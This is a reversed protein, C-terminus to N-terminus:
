NGILILKYCNNFENSNIIIIYTGPKLLTEKSSLFLTKTNSYEKNFITLGTLNKITLNFNCSRDFDLTFDSLTPNPYIKLMNKTNENEILSITQIAENTLSGTKLIFEENSLDTSLTDSFFYTENEFSYEAAVNLLLRGSNDFHIESPIVPYNTGANSASIFTGSSDFRAIYTKENNGTLSYSNNLADTLLLSGGGQIEQTVVIENEKNDMLLYNGIQHTQNLTVIWKILGNEGFKLIQNCSNALLANRSNNADIIIISDPSNLTLNNTLYLNNANDTHPYLYLPGGLTKTYSTVNWNYLGNSDAKIIFSNPNTFSTINNIHPLNLTFSNPFTLTASSYNNSGSLYINKNKDLIFEFFSAPLNSNVISSNATIKWYLTNQNIKFFTIEPSNDSLPVRHAIETLTGNFFSYLEGTHKAKIFLNGNEDSILQDIRLNRGEFVYHNLLNGLTDLKMVVSLSQIQTEVSPYPFSSYVPIILSDGNNFTFSNYNSSLYQYDVAFYIEGTNTSFPKPIGISNDSSGTYLVWKLVGYKNYKALFGGERNLISKSHGYVSNFTANNFNGSILYDDNKLIHTKEILISSSNDQKNFGCNWITDAPVPQTYIMTEAKTITDFCLNDSWCILTVNKLGTTSYSIETLNALNSQLLSADTPFRWDFHQAEICKEYYPFTEGPVANIYGAHFDAKTKEVTIYIRDTLSLFCNSSNIYYAKIYFYGSNSILNSNISATNGNGIIEGFYPNGNGQKHLEYIINPNSNHIQVIASENKCLISDPAVVSLNAPPDYIYLIQEATDTLSGNNVIYTVTYTGITPFTYYHFSNNDSFLLAGNLFIQSSYNAPLPTRPCICTSYGSCNPNINLKVVPKNPFGADNTTLFTGNPGVAFGKNSDAFSLDNINYGASTVQFENSFYIGHDTAIYTYNNGWKVEKANLPCFDFDDHLTLLNYSFSYTSYQSGFLHLYNLSSVNYVDTYTEPNTPYYYNVSPPINQGGCNGFIVINEGGIAYIEGSGPSIYINISVLNNTTALPVIHFNTPYGYIFLGNNGVAYIGNSPNYGIDNLRTNIDGYYYLSISFTSCNLLFIVARHEITDEGCLFLTQDNNNAYRFIKSNSLTISDSSNGTIHIPEWDAATLGGTTTGYIGKDGFILARNPSTWIGRSVWVSNFNDNIGINIPTWGAISFIPSFLLILYILSKM